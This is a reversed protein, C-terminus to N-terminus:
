AHNHEEKVQLHITRVNDNIDKPCHSTLTDTDGSWVVTDEVSLSNHTYTDM